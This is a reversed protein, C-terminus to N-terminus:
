CLHKIVANYEGITIEMSLKGGDDTNDDESEM